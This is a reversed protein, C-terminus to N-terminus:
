DCSLTCDWVLAWFAVSDVLGLFETADNNRGTAVRAPASAVEHWKGLGFHRSTQLRMEGVPANAHGLLAAGDEGHDFGRFLMEIGTLNEALSLGEVSGDIAAGDIAREIKELAVPQDVFEIEHVDVSFTMVILAPEGAIVDVGGAQTAALDRLEDAILELPELALDFAVAAEM